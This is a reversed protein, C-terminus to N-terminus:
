WTKEWHGTRKRSLQFERVGAILVAQWRRESKSAEELLPLTFIPQSISHGLASSTHSSLDPPHLQRFSHFFTKLLHVKSQGRGNQSLHFQIWTTLHYPLPLYFGLGMSDPVRDIPFSKPLGRAALPAEKTRKNIGKEENFARTRLTDSHCRFDWGISAELKILQPIIHSSIRDWWWRRLLSPSFNVFFWIREKVIKFFCVQYFLSAFNINKM